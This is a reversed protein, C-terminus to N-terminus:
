SEKGMGVGTDTIAILVTDENELRASLSIYGKKTYKISNSM